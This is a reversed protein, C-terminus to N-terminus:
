RVKKIEMARGNKYLISLKNSGRKWVGIYGISYRDKNYSIREWGEDELSENVEEEYLGTYWDILEDLKSDSVARCIFADRVKKVAEDSNHAVVRHILGKSDKVQYIKSDKKMEAGGNYQVSTVHPQGMIKKKAEELSFAEVIIDKEKGMFQIKFKYKNKADKVSYIMGLIKGSDKILKISGNKVGFEFRSKPLTQQSRGVSFTVMKDTVKDISGNGELGEFFYIQGVHIPASDELEITRPYQAHILESPIKVAVEKRVDDSTFTLVHDGDSWKYDTGDKYGLHYLIADVKQVTKIFNM